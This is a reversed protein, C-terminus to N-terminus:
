NENLEKARNELIKLEAKTNINNLCDFDSVEVKINLSELGELFSVLKLKDAHIAELLKPVIRKNYVAILPYSNRDDSLFTVDKNESLNDILYKQIVSASINPVDCSLILNHESKSYNLASFIGGLPGKEKYIDEILPYGFVSYDQNDTVLYINKTVPEIAEIVWQIFPKDKFSVFGKESQMRSSKGGCLIFAIINTDNNM